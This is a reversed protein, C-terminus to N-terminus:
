CILTLVAAIKWIHVRDGDRACRPREALEARDMAPPISSSSISMGWEPNLMFRVSLITPISPVGL